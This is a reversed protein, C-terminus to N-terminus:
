ALFNHNQLVVLIEVKNIDILSLTAHGQIAREIWTLPQHLPHVPQTAYVLPYYAAQSPIQQPPNIQNHSSIRALPFLKVKQHLPLALLKDM